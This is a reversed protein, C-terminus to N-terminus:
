RAAGERRVGLLRDYASVLVEKSYDWALDRQFRERNGQGMEARLTEDDLLQLLKAALDEELNPEAYLAGDQASYRTETLDFAM